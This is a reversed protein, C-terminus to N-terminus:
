MDQMLEVVTACGEQRHIIFSRHCHYLGRLIMLMWSKIDSSGFVVNKNKIVMELDADLFELVLNMNNKHTFVDILEIINPHRLEQLAKVERIASMDLGDKFQGLRIKKIAIKRRQLEASGTAVIRKKSDQTSRAGASESEAQATASPYAWGQYVVAYTGEGVQKEKEYREYKPTASRGSTLSLATTTTM